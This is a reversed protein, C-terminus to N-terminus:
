QLPAREPAAPRRFPPSGRNMFRPRMSAVRGSRRFFLDFCKGSEHIPAENFGSCGLHMSPVHRPSGRNMFRPRMSADGGGVDTLPYRGSGRNMFRPRMSAPTLAILMGGRRLSKGSEHIPAENFRRPRALRGHGGRDSGRNMFRPRMSAPACRPCFWSSWPLKGSEHIPAENFCGGSSEPSSICGHSGRNM